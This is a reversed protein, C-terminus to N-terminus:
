LEFQILDFLEDLADFSKEGTKSEEGGLLNIGAPQLEDVIAILNTANFDLDLIIPYQKCISRLVEHSIASGAQLDQWSSFHTRGNLIFYGGSAQMAQLVNSLEIETLEPTVVVEVMLASETNNTFQRAEADPLQIADLNMIMATENVESALSGSFEGVIKPGHLWGMIQQAERPQIFQASAPSLNFGIWEVGKSSFYRADTLNQVSGAKVKLNDQM